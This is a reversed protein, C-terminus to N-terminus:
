EDDPGCSRICDMDWLQISGDTLSGTALSKGDPAIAVRVIVIPPTHIHAILRGSEAEWLRLEGSEKTQDGGVTVLLLGDESAACHLFREWPSTICRAGQLGHKDVLWVEKSGYRHLLFWDKGVTSTQVEFGELGAPLDVARFAHDLEWTKTKVIRIWGTGCLCLLTLGDRAFIGSYIPPDPIRIKTIIRRERMSWIAIEDVKGNPAVAMLENDPSIAINAPLKLNGGLM